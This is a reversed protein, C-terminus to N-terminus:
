PAEAPLRAHDPARLHAARRGRRTTRQRRWGTQRELGPARRPPWGPGPPQKPRLVLHATRRAEEGAHHLLEVSGRAVRVERGADDVLDARAVGDVVQAERDFELVAGDLDDLRVARLVAVVAQGGLAAQTHARVDGLVLHRRERRQHRELAGDDLHGEAAGLAANAEVRVRGLGHASAHDAAVGGLQDLLVEHTGADIHGRRVIARALLLHRPDGVGVAREAARVEIGPTADGALGDREVANGSANLRRTQADVVADGLHHGIGALHRQQAQRGAGLALPDDHLPQTVHARM